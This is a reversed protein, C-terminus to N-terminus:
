KKEQEKKKKAILYDLILDSRLFITWENVEPM